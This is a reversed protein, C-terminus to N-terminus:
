SNSSASGEINHPSVHKDMIVKHLVGVTEAALGHLFEYNVNVPDMRSYFFNQIINLFGLAASSDEPVNGTKKWLLLLEDNVIRGAEDVDEDFHAPRSKVLLQSEVLFFTKHKVILLLLDPDIKQCNAVESAISTALGVHYHLLSKVYFEMTGFYHCFGPNILTLPRLSGNLRSEMWGKQQWYSIDQKIWTDIKSLTMPALIFSPLLNSDEHVRDKLLNAPSREMMEKGVIKQQVRNWIGM